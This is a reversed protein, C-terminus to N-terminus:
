QKYNFFCEKNHFLFSLGLKSYEPEHHSIALPLLKYRKTLPHHNIEDENKYRQVCLVSIYGAQDRSETVILPGIERYPIQNIIMVSKRYEYNNFYKNHYLQDNFVEFYPKIDELNFYEHVFLVKCSTRSRGFFMCIQNSLTSLQHSSPERDLLVACGESYNQYFKYKSMYDSVTQNVKGLVYLKEPNVFPKETITIRNKLNPLTEIIKIFTTVIFKQEEAVMVFCSKHCLSIILLEVIGELPSIPRYICYAPEDNRYVKESDLVRIRQFYTEDCFRLEEILLELAYEIHAPIFWNNYIQSENILQNLPERLEQFLKDYSNIIHSSVDEPSVNLTDTKKDINKTFSLCTEIFCAIEKMKVNNLDPMKLLSLAFTTNKYLSDIVAM